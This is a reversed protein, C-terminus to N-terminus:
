IACTLFHSSISLMHFTRQELLYDRPHRGRRAPRGGRVRGGLVACATLVGMLLLESDLM